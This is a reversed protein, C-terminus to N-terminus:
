LHFFSAAVYLTTKDVAPRAKITVLTQVSLMM